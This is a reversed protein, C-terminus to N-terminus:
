TRASWRNAYDALHRRILESFEKRRYNWWLAEDLSERLAIIKPGDEFNAKTLSVKETCFYVWIDPRRTAKWAEYAKRLEHETGSGADAVPTGFRSWFIAIVIDADQIRMSEDVKGQPGDVHFGPASDTEWKWVEFHLGRTHAINRNVEEVALNVMKREKAVDSPSAVIVRVFRIAAPQKEAMVSEESPTGTAGADEAEGRSLLRYQDRLKRYTEDERGRIMALFSLKGRVVSEFRAPALHPARTKRSGYSAHYASHAAELGFKRWAHLMARIQRVVGRDVNLKKNVKLGTVVQRHGQSQLRVKSTNIRFGNAEITGTLDTGVVFRNADSYALTAPFHPLNTSFTLDDAYRTYGCRSRQALQELDGDMRAVVMNSVIPSTPAGQPLRGRHCVIQAFAVAADRQMRYPPSMFAKLVRGFNISPFFDQLDVNLVWRRRVHFIANSRISRGLTFGHVSSKPRYITALVANARRQIDRVSEIPALIQRSGGRRKPVDFTRYRSELPRKRFNWVFSSYTVGLYAAVERASTLKQIASRAEAIDM